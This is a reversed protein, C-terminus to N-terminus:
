NEEDEGDEGDEREREKRCCAGKRRRKLQLKESSSIGFSVLSVTMLPFFFFFFFFFFFVMWVWLVPPLLRCCLLSSSLPDIWTTPQNNNRLLLHLFFVLFSRSVRKRERKRSEDPFSKKDLFIDDSWSSGRERGLRDWDVWPM